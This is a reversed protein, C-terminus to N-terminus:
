EEYINTRFLHEIVRLSEESWDSPCLNYKKNETTEIHFAGRGKGLFRNRKVAKIRSADLDFSHDLRSSLFSVRRKRFQLRGVCFDSTIGGSTLANEHLHHVLVTAKGGLAIAAEMLKLSGASDRRAHLLCLALNEAVVADTSDTEWAEELLNAAEKLDGQEIKSLAKAVLAARHSAGRAQEEWGANVPLGYLAAPLNGLLLFLM